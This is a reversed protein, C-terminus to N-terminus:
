KILKVIKELVDDRSMDSTVEVDVCGEEDKGIPDCM